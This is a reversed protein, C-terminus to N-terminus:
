RMQDIVENIIQGRKGRATIVAQYMTSTQTMNIMEKDLNVNNGDIRGPEDSVVAEPMVTDLSDTPGQLHRSDTRVLPALPRMAEKLKSEFPAMDVAKYGPTEANAINSNIMLMRQAQFDLSKVALNGVRNTYLIDNILGM